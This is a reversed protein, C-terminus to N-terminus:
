ATHRRKRFFLASAGVLGTGLLILSSLEPLPSALVDATFSSGNATATIDLVEYTTTYGTEYLYGGILESSGSANIDSSIFGTAIPDFWVM